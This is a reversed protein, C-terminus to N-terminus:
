PSKKRLVITWGTPDHPKLMVDLASLLFSLHRNRVYWRTGWAGEFALDIRGDRVYGETDSSLLKRFAMPPYPRVHSFTAWVNRVGPTSLVMVGGPVLVRGAERLLTAADSADFHEIVQAAHVAEFMNDPFELQLANMLRVDLGRKRCREVLGPDVDIGVFRAPDRAVFDGKGAGIDLVRRGALYKSYFPDVRHKLGLQVYELLNM